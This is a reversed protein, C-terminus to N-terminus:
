YSLECCLLLQLIILFKCIKVYSLIKTDSDNRDYPERVNFQIFEQLMVHM